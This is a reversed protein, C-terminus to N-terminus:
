LYRSSCSDAYDDTWFRPPPTPDGVPWPAAAARVQPNELFQRNSTILIWRTPDTEQMSSGPDDMLIAQVGRDKPVLAALSRVVPNLNFYRNTIHIALIGDEKLHYRYTQFCERTLLHVPIADSSFADVALM